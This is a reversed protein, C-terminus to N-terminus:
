ALEKLERPRRTRTQLIVTILTGIEFGNHPNFSSICAFRESSLGCHVDDTIKDDNNCM